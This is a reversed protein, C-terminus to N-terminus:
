GMERRGVFNFGIRPYAVQSTLVLFMGSLLQRTSRRLRDRSKM